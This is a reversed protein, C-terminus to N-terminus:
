KNHKFPRVREHLSAALKTFLEPTRQHCLLFGTFLQSKFFHSLQQPTINLGPNSETPLTQWPSSLVSNVADRRSAPSLRSASQACLIGSTCCPELGTASSTVALSGRDVPDLLVLHPPSLHIQRCDLRIKRIQHFQHAASILLHVSSLLLPSIRLLTSTLHPSTLYPSLRSPALASASLCATFIRSQLSILPLRAPLLSQKLSLCLCLCFCVCFSACPLSCLAAERFERRGRLSEHRGCLWRGRWCWGAKQGRRRCCCRDERGRARKARTQFISWAWVPVTQDAGQGGTCRQNAVRGVCLNGKLAGLSALVKVAVLSQM